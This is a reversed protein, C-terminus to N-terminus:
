RLAITTVQGTLLVHRLTGEIESFIRAVAVGTINQAYMIAMLKSKWRDVRGASTVARFHLWGGIKSVSDDVM